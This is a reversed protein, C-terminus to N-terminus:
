GPENKRFGLLIEGKSNQVILDLTFLSGLQILKKFEKNSLM